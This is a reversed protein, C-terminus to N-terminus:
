TLKIDEKWYGTCRKQSSSLFSRVQEYKSDALDRKTYVILRHSRKEKGSFREFAPNISSLPLRADRVEVFLDTQGIRQDMLRLAKTMHGVFWSPLSSPFPFTPRPIFTMKNTESYHSVTVNHQPDGHLLSRQQSAAGKDAQKSAVSCM